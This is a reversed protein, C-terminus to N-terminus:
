KPPMIKPLGELVAAIDRDHFAGKRYAHNVKVTQEVYLLVTIDADKNLHYAPPGARDYTTLVINKLGEKEALEKLRKSAAEADDSLLVVFSGMKHDANQATAEDLKKVLSTLPATIERAFVAAV